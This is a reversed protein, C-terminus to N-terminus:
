VRLRGVDEPQLPAEAVDDASLGRLVRAVPAPEPLEAASTAGLDRFRRAQPLVMRELSGVASNYADSARELGRRLEGFHAAFTRVREYLERGLASIAEANRAVREQQWGYAVARLLAILTTPSAALVRQGVGHEILSPDHQLAAGFVSEGPLFM